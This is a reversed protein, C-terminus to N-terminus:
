TLKGIVATGSVVSTGVDDGTACATVASHSDILHCPPCPAVPGKSFKQLDIGSSMGEGSSRPIPALSSTPETFKVLLILCSDGRGFSSVTSTEGTRCFLVKRFYYRVFNVFASVISVFLMKPTSPMIATTVPPPVPGTAGRRSM